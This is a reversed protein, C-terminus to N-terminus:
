GTLKQQRDHIYGIERVDISEIKGCSEVRRRRPLVIEESPWRPHSPDRLPASYRTACRDAHVCESVAFQPNLSIRPISFRRHSLSGPYSPHRYPLLLDPLGCLPQLSRLTSAPFHHPQIGFLCQRSSSFVSKTATAPSLRSDQSLNRRRRPSERVAKQWKKPIM